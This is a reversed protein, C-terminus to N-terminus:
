GRASRGRGADVTHRSRFIRRLGLAQAVERTQFDAGLVLDLPSASWDRFHTLRPREGAANVYYYSATNLRTRSGDVRGVSHWSHEATEMLVFRNPGYSVRRKRDRADFLELHGGDEEDWAPAFYFLGVLRRRSKGTLDHSNDLHPRTFDGPALVTCGGNYLLPDGRLAPMDLAEGIATAVDQSNLALILARLPAPVLNVDATVYKREKLSRRRIMQEPRPPDASVAKFAEPSLFDDIWCARVRGDERGFDRRLNAAEGEIRGAIRQSLSLDAEIAQLM